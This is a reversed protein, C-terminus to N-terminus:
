NRTLCLDDKESILESGLLNKLNELQENNQVIIVLRCERPVLLQTSNKFGFGVDSGTSWGGLTATDTISVKDPNTQTEIRTLGLRWATETGREADSVISCGCFSFAGSLLLITRFIEM